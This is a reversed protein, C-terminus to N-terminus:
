RKGRIAAVARSSEDLSVRVPEDSDSGIYPKAAALMVPMAEDLSDPSGTTTVDVSWLEEPVAESKGKTNVDELYDALDIAVLNLYKTYVTTAFKAQQYGTLREAPAYEVPSSSGGGSSSQAKNGSSRVASSAFEPDITEKQSTRVTHYEKGPESIAATLYVAISAKDFDDSDVRTYGHDALVKELQAAYADFAPSEAPLGPSGSVVIYTKESDISENSNATVDLTYLTGCGTLAILIALAGLANSIKNM